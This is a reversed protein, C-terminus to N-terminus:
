GSELADFRGAPLEPTLQADRAYRLAHHRTHDFENNKFVAHSAASLFHAPKIANIRLEVQQNVVGVQLV